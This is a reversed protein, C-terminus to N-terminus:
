LRSEAKLERIVVWITDVSYRMQTAIQKPNYGKKTLSLVMNKRVEFEQATKLPPRM